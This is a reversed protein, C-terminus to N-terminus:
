IFQLQWINALGKRDSAYVLVGMSYTLRSAATTVLASSDSYDPVTGPEDDHAPERPFSRGAVTDIGM